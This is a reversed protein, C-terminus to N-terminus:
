NHQYLIFLFFALSNVILYLALLLCLLDPLFYQKKM